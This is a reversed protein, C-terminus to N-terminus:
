SKLGTMTIGEIFQKQLFIFVVLLPFIAITAGAMQWHINSGYQEAFSQLGVPITRSAESSSIILPWLFEEWNWSFVFIALASLAQKCNPLIMQFFIRPESAGDIRASELLDTPISSIFQRLLFVGVAEFLWPFIVGTLTNSFGLSVALRYLPVMRVQFPIMLSALILYFLITKGPFNFKAFVYGTTASTFLVGFIVFAVVILSNLYYRLFPFQRFVERFNDLTPQQPIWTPPIQMVESLPKFAASTMWLLPLLMIVAGVTLVIYLAIYSLHRSYNPQTQRKMKTQKMSLANM